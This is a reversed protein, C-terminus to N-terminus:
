TQRSLLFTREKQIQDLVESYSLNLEQMLRQVLNARPRYEYAKGFKTTRRLMARRSRTGLRAYAITVM